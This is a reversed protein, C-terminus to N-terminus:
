NKIRKKWNKPINSFFKLRYENVEDDTIVNKTIEDFTKGELFKEIYYMSYVGCESNGTQHEITNYKFIIDEEKFGKSKLYEKITNVFEEIEIGYTEPKKACSDIFYIEGKELDFFMMFWHQGRGSHKDSNIILGFRHKGNDELEKFSIDKIKYTDHKEFDLPVSGLYKFKQYLDEYQEMVITMRISDMWEFQKDPGEIRFISKELIEKVDKDLKDMFDYEYWKTQDKGLSIQLENVLYLKYKELYKKNTGDKGILIIKNKTTENYAEAIKHLISLPICSGSVFGISPSCKNNKEKVIINQKSDLFPMPLKKNNIADNKIFKNFENNTQYITDRLIPMPAKGGKLFYKKKM